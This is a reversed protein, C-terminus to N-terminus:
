PWTMDTTCDPLLRLLDDPPADLALVGGAGGAVPVRISRLALDNSEFSREPLGRRLGGDLLHRLGHGSGAHLAGAWGPRWSLLLAAFGIGISYHAVIGLRAEGSVPEADAISAHSFRGKGM